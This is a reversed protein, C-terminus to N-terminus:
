SSTTESSPLFTVRFPIYKSGLRRVVADSKEPNKEITEALFELAKKQDLKKTGFLSLVLQIIVEKLEKIEERLNNENKM